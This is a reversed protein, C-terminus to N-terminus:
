ASCPLDGTLFMRLNRVTKLALQARRRTSRGKHRSMRPSFRETRLRPRGASLGRAVAGAKALLEAEFFLHQANNLTKEASRVLVALPANDSKAAKEGRDERKIDNM